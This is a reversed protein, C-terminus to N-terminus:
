QPLLAELKQWDIVKFNQNGAPVRNRGDQVVILGKPFGKLVAASVALGDTESAGDLGLEVNPGVSFKVLYQWPALSFLVYSDDGQSSALLLPGREPHPYIDLGEVDAVLHGRAVAEILEQQQTATNIRWIGKDEQGVYVAGERASYVCGETQSSFRYRHNLRGPAAADPLQWHQFQSDSDGVFIEIGQSSRGMCLGYPDDLDLPIARLFTVQNLSRKALYLDIAKDTRNSAALLYSDADLALADVNNIRGRPLFHIQKGAADFIRLGRQKDTGAIWFDGGQWVLIAPDDAADGATEVTDTELDASIVPQDAQPLQDTSLPTDAALRTVWTRDAASAPRLIGDTEPNRETKVPGLYPDDLFIDGQSLVCREIDPNSSLQRVPMLPASTGERLWYHFVRGDGDTIVLDRTTESLPAFCLGDVDHGLNAIRTADLRGNGIAGFWLAPVEGDTAWVLHKGSQALAEIEADGQWLTIAGSLEDPQTTSLQVIRTDDIALVSPTSNGPAPASTACGLLGASLLGTLILKLNM